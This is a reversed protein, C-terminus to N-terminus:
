PVSLGITQTKSDGGSAATVTVTYNGAPTGSVPNQTSSHSCAPLFLLMTFISCLLMIGLIRRRRRDRGVTVLALAPFALWFAYFQRNWM